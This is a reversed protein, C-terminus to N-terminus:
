YSRSENKVVKRQSNQKSNQQCNELQLKLDQIIEDQLQGAHQEREYALRFNIATAGLYYKDAAHRYEKDSDRQQRFYLDICSLSMFVIAIIICIAITLSYSLDLHKSIQKM